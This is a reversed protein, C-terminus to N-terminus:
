NNIKNLINMADIYLSEGIFDAFTFITNDIDIKIGYNKRYFLGFIAVNKFKSKTTSNDNCLLVVDNVFRNFNEEKYNFLTYIYLGEIFKIYTKNEDYKKMLLTLNGNSLENIKNIECIEEIMSFFSKLNENCNKTIQPVSNVKKFTQIKYICCLIDYYETNYETNKEFLSYFDNILSEKLRTSSSYVVFIGGVLLIIKSLGGIKGLIDFITTYSREYQNVRDSSKITIKILDDSLTGPTNSYKDNDFSVYYESTNSNTMSKPIIKTFTTLKNKQFYANVSSMLSDGIEISKWELSDRLPHDM